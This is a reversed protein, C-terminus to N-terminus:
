GLKSMVVMSILLFFLTCVLVVLARRDNSALEAGMEAPFESKAPAAPRADAATTRAAGAV